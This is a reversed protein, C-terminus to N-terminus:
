ITTPQRLSGNAHRPQIRLEDAHDIRTLEEPTWTTM